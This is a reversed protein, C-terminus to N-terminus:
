PAAAGRGRDEVDAILLRIAEAFCAAPGPHAGRAHVLPTRNEIVIARWARGDAGSGEAGSGDAYARVAFSRGGYVVAMDRKTLDM